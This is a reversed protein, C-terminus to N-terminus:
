RLENFKEIDKNSGLVVLTDGKKIVDSPHPNINWADKGPEEEDKGKIAIVTIGHM